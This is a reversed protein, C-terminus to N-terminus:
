KSFGRLKSTKKGVEECIRDFVDEDYKFAYYDESGAYRINIDGDDDIFAFDVKTPDIVAPTYKPEVAAPSSVVRPKLLLRGIWTRREEYIYEEKPTLKLQIKM